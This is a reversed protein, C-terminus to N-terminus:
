PARHILDSFLSEYDSIVRNIHFKEKATKLGIEVFRDRTDFETLLQAILDALKKSDKNDFLFGNEGHSIIDPIGGFDSGIVPIGFTMSEVLTLGFGDMESALINLDMLQLYHLAEEHSVVGTFIFKHNSLKEILQQDVEWKGLGVFLITQNGNIYQLAEFIVKQFKPRSLCGIVQGKIGLKDKLRLLDQHTLRNQILEEIPLGNQIVSLHEPHYGKSVFIKKLGHSVMIICDTYRSHFYRKIWPENRPRQRRTFVLKCRMGFLVKSVITLNRDRGGQANVLEIGNEVVIRAVAKASGIDFYSSFPIDHLFVNKVAKLEERLLTLRNCAVHIQHGSAALGKVLYILSFTSGALNGQHTTFLIRMLSFPWM